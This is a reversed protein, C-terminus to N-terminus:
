EDNRHFQVSFLPYILSKMCYLVCCVVCVSVHSRLLLLLLSVVRVCVYVSEFLRIHNHVDVYIYGRHETELEGWCMVSPHFLVFM